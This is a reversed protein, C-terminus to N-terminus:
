QLEQDVRTVWIDYSGNDGVRSFAVLVGDPSVAPESGSETQPLDLILGGNVSALALRGGRRYVLRNSDPTWAPQDGDTVEFSDSGDPRTVVIRRGELPYVTRQQQCAPGLFEFHVCSGTIPPGRLLRTYAIWEGDPSWAAHVGDETGPVPVAEASGVEWVLLRLGDSFVLREGDPAWSPEFIRAGEDNFLHHFPHFEVVFTGLGSPSPEFRQGELPRRLLPETDIPAASGVPRVRFFVERLMPVEPSVGETCQVTLAPCLIGDDVLWLEVYALSEGDESLVPSSLWRQPGTALQVEPLVQEAEGGDVPVRLLVGPAPAFPASGPAAYYVSDGAVSWSPNRDDEISFTLRRPLEDEPPDRDAPLDPVTADRCGLLTLLALVTALAAWGRSEGHLGAM